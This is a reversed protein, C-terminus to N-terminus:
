EREKKKELDHELAGILLAIPFADWTKGKDVYYSLEKRLSQIESELEKITMESM